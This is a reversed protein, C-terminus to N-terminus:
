RRGGHSPPRIGRAGLFAGVELGQTLRLANRSVEDEEIRGVAPHYGVIALAGGPAVHGGGRELDGVADDGEFGADHPVLALDNGIAALRLWALTPTMRVGQM